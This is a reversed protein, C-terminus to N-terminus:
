FIFMEWKWEQKLGTNAAKLSWENVVLNISTKQCLMGDTTVLDSWPSKGNWQEFLITSFVIVVNLM